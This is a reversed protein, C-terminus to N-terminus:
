VAGIELPGHEIVSSVGGLAFTTRYYHSGAGLAEVDELAVYLNLETSSEVTWSSGNVTGAPTVALLAAEGSDMAAESDFVEFVPAVDNMDAYDAEGDPRWGDYELDMDEDVNISLTTLASTDPDGVWDPATYGSPMLADAADGESLPELVCVFALPFGRFARATKIEGIRLHDGTVANMWIDGSQVRPVAQCLCQMSDDRVAGETVTRVVRGGGREVPIMTFELSDHYGNLWGTGYCSACSSVTVGGLDTDYCACREGSTLRRFLWGRIGCYTETLKSHARMQERVLRWELSSLQGTVPVQESEREDSGDVVSVKYWGDQINNELHPPLTEDVYVTDDVVPSATLREWEGGTVGRYVHFSFSSGTLPAETNLRWQVAVGGTSWPTLWVRSFYPQSSM